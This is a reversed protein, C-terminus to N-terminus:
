SKTYIAFAVLIILATKNYENLIISIIYVLPYIHINQYKYQLYKIRQLFM